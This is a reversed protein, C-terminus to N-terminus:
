FLLDLDTERRERPHPTRHSLLTPTTLPWAARIVARHDWAAPDTIIVGAM